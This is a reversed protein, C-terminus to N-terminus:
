FQTRSGSATRLSKNKEFIQKILVTSFISHVYPSTLNHTGKKVKRYHFLVRKSDEPHQGWNRFYGRSFNFYNNLYGHQSFTTLGRFVLLLLIRVKCIRVRKDAIRRRLYKKWILNKDKLCNGNYIQPFVIIKWRKM